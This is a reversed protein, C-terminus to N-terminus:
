HVTNHCIVMSICIYSSFKKKIWLKSLSLSSWLWACAKIYETYTNEQLYLTTFPSWTTIYTWRINPYISYIIHPMHLVFDLRVASHTSQFQYKLLPHHIWLFVSWQTLILIKKKVNNFDSLIFLTQLIDLKGSCTPLARAMRHHQLTLCVNSSPTTLSDQFAQLWCGVLAM